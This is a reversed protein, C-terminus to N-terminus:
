RKEWPLKEWECPMRLAAGKMALGVRVLLVIRHRAGFDEVRQGARFIIGMM